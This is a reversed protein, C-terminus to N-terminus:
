YTRVTRASARRLEQDARARTPWLPNGCNHLSFQELAALCVPVGQGSDRTLRFHTRTSVQWAFSQSQHLGDAPLRAALQWWPLLHVWGCPPFGSNGSLIRISRQSGGKKSNIHQSQCSPGHGAAVSKPHPPQAGCARRSLRWATWVTSQTYSQAVALECGRAVRQRGTLLTGKPTLESLKFSMKTKDRSCQSVTARLLRALPLCQGAQSWWCWRRRRICSECSGELQERLECFIWTWCALHSHKFALAFSVCLFLV